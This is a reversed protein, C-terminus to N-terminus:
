TDKRPRDRLRVAQKYTINQAGNPLRKPWRQLVSINSCAIIVVDGHKTIRCTM